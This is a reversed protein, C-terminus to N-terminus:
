GPTSLYHPAPQEREECIEPQCWLAKSGPLPGPMATLTLQRTASVWVTGAGLPQVDGEGCRGAPSHHGPLSTWGKGNWASVQALSLEAQLM